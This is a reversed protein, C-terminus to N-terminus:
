KSDLKQSIEKLLVLAKEHFAAADTIAEQQRDVATKQREVAVRQRRLSKAFPIATILLFLVLPLMGIGMDIWFKKGHGLFQWTPACEMGSSISQSAPQGAAFGVDKDETKLRPM